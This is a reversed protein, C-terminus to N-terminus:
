DVASTLAVDHGRFPTVHRRTQSDGRYRHRRRGSDSKANRDADRWGCDGLRALASGRRGLRRGGAASVGSKGEDDSRRGIPCRGRLACRSRAAGSARDSGMPMRLASRWAGRLDLLLGGHRRGGVGGASSILLGSGAPALAAGAGGGAGGEGGPVDSTPQTVPGSLGFLVMSFNAMVPVSRPIMHSLPAAMLHQHGEAVSVAVAADAALLPSVVRQHAALVTGKGVGDAHRITNDAVM